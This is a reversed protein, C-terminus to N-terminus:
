SSYRKPNADNKGMKSSNKKIKVILDVAEEDTYPTYEGKKEM